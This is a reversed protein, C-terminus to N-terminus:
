GPPLASLREAVMPIPNLAYSRQWAQRVQDVPAGAEQYALGLYFWARPDDPRDRLERQLYAIAQEVDHPQRDARSLHFHALDSYLTRGHSTPWPQGQGRYADIDALLRLEVSPRATDMPEFRAAPGWAIPGYGLLCGAAVLMLLAVGVVQRSHRSPSSRRRQVPMAPLIAAVLIVAGLVIGIASVDLTRDIWSRWSLAITVHLSWVLAALVLFGRQRRRWLRQLGMAAMVWVAPWYLLHFRSGVVGGGIVLWAGVAVWPVLGAALVCRRGQRAGRFVPALSAAAGALLPVTWLVAGPWVMGDLYVQMAAFPGAVMHAKTAQYDMTIRTIAHWIDSAKGADTEVPGGAFALVNVLCLWAVVPIVAVGISVALARTARSRRRRLALHVTEAAALGAVLFLGKGLHTMLLLFWLLGKRVPRRPDGARFLAPWLLLMLLSESFEGRANCFALVDSTTVILLLTAAAPRGLRRPAERAVLVLTAVGIMVPCLRLSILSGQGLLASPVAQLWWWLPTIADSRRVPVDIFFARASALLEELGTGMVFVEDYGVGCRIALAVRLVMGVAVCATALALYGKPRRPAPQTTAPHSMPETAAAPM